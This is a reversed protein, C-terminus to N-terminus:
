RSYMCTVGGLQIAITAFTLFGTPPWASALGPGYDGHMTAYKNGRSVCMEPTNVTVLERFEDQAGWANVIRCNRLEPRSSYTM